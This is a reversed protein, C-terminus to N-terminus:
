TRAPERGQQLWPAPRTKWARQVEPTEPYLVAGLRGSEWCLQRADAEWRAFLLYEGRQRATIVLLAVWTGLFSRKNM